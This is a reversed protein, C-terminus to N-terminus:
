SREKKGDFEAERMLQAGKWIGLGGVVVAVLYLLSEVISAYAAIVTMAVCLMMGFAYRDKQKM